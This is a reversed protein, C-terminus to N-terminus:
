HLTNSLISFNKIQMLSVSLDHEINYDHLIAITDCGARSAAILGANSDEFVLTEAAKVGFRDLALTYAQPHPKHKSVDEQTIIIHFKECLSFQSLIQEVM